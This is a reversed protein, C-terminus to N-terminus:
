RQPIPEVIKPNYKKYLQEITGNEQAEMVPLIAKNFEELLNKFKEFVEPRERYLLFIGLARACFSPPVCAVLYTTPSAAIQIDPDNINSGKAAMYSLWTQMLYFHQEHGPLKEKYEYFTDEINKIFYECNYKTDFVSRIFGLIKTLKNM